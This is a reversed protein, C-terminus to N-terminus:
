IGLILATIQVVIFALFGATATDLMVGLGGPIKKAINQLQKPKYIIFNKAINQLQKPKYIIFFNYLFFAFAYLWIVKPALFLALWMGFFEDAGKIKTREIIVAGAFFLANIIVVSTIISFDHFFFHIFM